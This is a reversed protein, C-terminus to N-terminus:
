IGGQADLRAKLADLRSELLVIRARQVDMSELQGEIIDMHISLRESHSQVVLLSAGSCILLGICMLLLYLTRRKLAGIQPDEM